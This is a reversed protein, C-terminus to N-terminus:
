LLLISIMAGICVGLSRYLKSNSKSLEVAEEINVKLNGLCFEFIKEQGYAGSDGLAKTFDGIIKTDENKLYLEDEKNLYAEKFASYVDYNDGNYLNESVRSLVQRFPDSLKNEIIKIAEPLPTRNFIVENQLFIIGKYSERLFDLRKKFRQGYSYGLLSFTSFVVIILIIKLM